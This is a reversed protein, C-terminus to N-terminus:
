GALNLRLSSLFTSGYMYTILHTHMYAIQVFLHISPHISSNYLAPSIKLRICMYAQLGQHPKIRFIYMLM